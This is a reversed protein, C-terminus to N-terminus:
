VGPEPHPPPSRTVAKSNWAPGKSGARWNKVLTLHLQSAPAPSPTWAGPQLEWQPLAWAKAGRACVDTWERSCGDWGQVVGSEGPSSFSIHIQHSPSIRVHQWSGSGPAGALTVERVLQQALTDPTTPVGPNQCGLAGKQRSCLQRHQQSGM